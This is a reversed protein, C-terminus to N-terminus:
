RKDATAETGKQDATGARAAALHKGVFKLSKRLQKQLSGSGWSHGGGEVLEFEHSVGRRELVEHLEKNPPAFQYRDDSGADFYIALSQLQAVPTSEALALPMHKGWKELDIPNGFVEALGGRELMRQVHRQWNGSLKAPDAPMLAASHAAVVAFRDPHRMAIKLAGFGGMSVGM